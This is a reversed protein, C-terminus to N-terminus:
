KNELNCSKFISGLKALDAEDNLNFLMAREERPADVVYWAVSMGAGRQVAQVLTDVDQNTEFSFYRDLGFTDIKAILKKDALDRTEVNPKADHASTTQNHFSKMINGYIAMEQSNLQKIGCFNITAHIVAFVIILKKM